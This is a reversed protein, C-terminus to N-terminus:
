RRRRRARRRSARRSRTGSGARSASGRRAGETPEPSLVSAWALTALGVAGAYTSLSATPHEEHSPSRDEERQRCPNDGEHKDSKDPRHRREAKSEPPVKALVLLHQALRETHQLSRQEANDAQNEREAEREGHATVLITARGCDGLGVRDPRAVQARLQDGLGGAAPRKSQERHVGVERDLDRLLNGPAGPHPSRGDRFPDQLSPEPTKGSTRDVRDRELAGRRYTSLRM